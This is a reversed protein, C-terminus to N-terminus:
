YLIKANMNDGLASQAFPALTNDDLVIERQVNQCDTKMEELLRLLIRHLDDVAMSLREHLQKNGPLNYAIEAMANLCTTRLDHGTDIDASCRPVGQEVGYKLELISNCGALCRDYSDTAFSRFEVERTFFDVVEPELYLYDLSMSSIDHLLNIKSTLDTHRNNDTSKTRMALFYVVISSIALGPILSSSFQIKRVVYCIFMTLVVYKLLDVRDTTFLFTYLSEAPVTMNRVKNSYLDPM